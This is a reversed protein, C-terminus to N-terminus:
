NSTRLTAALMDTLWQQYTDANWGRGAILETFLHPGTLTWCADACREHDAGPELVGQDALHSVFATVGTLREAESTALVEAVEPGAQTLLAFLPALRDHVGHVFAAYLRLKTHPDRTSWVEQLAPREAMSLPEDDGALTVDWLAKMLGPKSGFAKYVTEPSVGARDAVARITTAQYGHSFLMDRCAALVAARNRQAAEKRQRSDYPRRTPM